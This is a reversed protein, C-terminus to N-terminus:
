VAKRTRLLEDALPCKGTHRRFLLELGWRTMSPRLVTFPEWKMEPFGKPCECM